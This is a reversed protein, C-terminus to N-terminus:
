WKKDRQKTDEQRRLRDNETQQRAREAEQREREAKWRDTNEQQRAREKEQQRQMDDWQDALASSAIIFTIAIIKM